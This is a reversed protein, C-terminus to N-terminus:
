NLNEMLAQYRHDTHLFDYAPDDQVWLFDTSRQRYGEELLALAHERDGLQAYHLALDVPSVYRSKAQLLRQKLEWRIFGRAGGIEYAHRLDAASKLDGSIIHLRALAEMAQKYNGRCRWVEKELFLLGPNNPAAIMRLRVEALAEDYRRSELYIAALAGPIEYPDLEMFKKEAEIAEPFRHLGALVDGLLYYTRPYNPDLHLALLAERDANAPDWSSILYAGGMATHAAALDPGLALAREAARRELPIGTRPDMTGGAVEAGYVDALGAWAEAYDPQIDTAKQFYLGSEEMRDTPWLYRGRLYADHAAPAIFRIAQPFSLVSNLLRAISQAAQNPVTADNAGRDFSEAWLHSDTKAHILQLTIHTRTGVRAYSGEVVADAGLVRAVEALPRRAGKYQMVSTRSIIRLTSDKVLMTTLEDTLGDAIYEQGPDGSLNEIPLVALSRILPANSTRARKYRWLVPSLFALTIMAMAAPRVFRPRGSGGSKAASVHQEVLALAENPLKASVSAAVAHQAISRNDEETASPEKLSDTLPAPVNNVACIFRYGQRPLTEVYRPQTACDRLVQRIQRICYAVSQDLDVYIGAEWVYRGLEERTVIAPSRAILYALVRFPQPQLKLRHGARLLSAENPRLEFDDFRVRHLPLNQEADGM